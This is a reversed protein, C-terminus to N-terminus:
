NWKMDPTLPSISGMTETYVNLFNDITIQEAQGMEGVEETWGKNAFAVEYVTSDDLTLGEKTVLIYPYPNGDGYPDYGAAVVNKIQAGTLKLKGIVNYQGPLIVWSDEQNFNGAYLTGGIGSGNIKGDLQGTTENMYQGHYGGISMIAIDTGLMKGYVQGVIKASDEISLDETVTGYIPVGGSTKYAEMTDKMVQKISSLEANGYFAAKVTDGMPVVLGKNHWAGYIQRVVRGELSAQYADYLYSDPTVEGDKRLPLVAANNGYLEQGEPSLLFKVFEVGLELKKENGPAELQKGLGVLQGASYYYINNSGDESIFPMLGVEIGNEAGRAPDFQAQGVYFVTEGNYFYSRTDVDGDSKEDTYYFGVDVLKQVYEITSNWIDMDVEEGNLFKREWQQGKIGGLFLMRAPYILYTFNSGPLKNDMRSMLIGKEDCKAKLAVLDAYNQPLEAGLQNLLTKNYFIGYLSTSVPLLYVGGDVTGIDLFSPVIENLFAYSSLDVLNEKMLEQKDEVKTTFYVDAQVGKELENTSYESGNAGRFFVSEIRIEPHQAEFENVIPIVRAPGLNMFDVTLVIQDEASAPIILMSLLFTICLFIAVTKKM